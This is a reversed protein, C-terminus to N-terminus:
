GKVRWHGGIWRYGADIGFEDWHAAIWEADPNPKTTWYGRTWYWQGDWDWYGAVWHNHDTPKEPKSESLLSPALVSESVYHQKHTVVWHGPTWHWKDANMSWHGHMWGANIFPPKRWRGSEWEWKDGIRKWEGPIWIHNRSPRASAAIPAKRAPVPVIEDVVWETILAGNKLVIDEEVVVKEDPAKADCGSILLLLALVAPVSNVATNGLM